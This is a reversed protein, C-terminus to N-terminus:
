VEKYYFLKSAEKLFILSESYQHATKNQNVRRLLSLTPLWKVTIFVQEAESWFSQIEVESRSSYSRLLKKIM